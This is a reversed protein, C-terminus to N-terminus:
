NGNLKAICRSIISKITAIFDFLFPKLDSLMFVAFCNIKGGFLNYTFDSWYHKRFILNLIEHKFYIFHIRDTLNQIYHVNKYGLADHWQTLQLNVGSLTGLRHWM